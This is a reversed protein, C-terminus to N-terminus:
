KSQRVEERLAQLKACDIHCAHHKCKYSGIIVSILILGFVGLIGGVTLQFNKMEAIM